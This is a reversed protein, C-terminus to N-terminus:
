VHSLYNFIREPYIKKKYNSSLVDDLWHIKIKLRPVTFKAVDLDHIAFFIDTRNTIEDDSFIKIEELYQIRIGLMNKMMREFAKIKKPDNNFCINYMVCVKSFRERLKINGTM